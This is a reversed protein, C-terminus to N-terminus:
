KSLRSARIAGVYWLSIQVKHFEFGHAVLHVPMADGGHPEVPGLAVVRPGAAHVGLVAPDHLLELVIGRRADDHERSSAFGETDPGVAACERVVDLGVGVIGREVPGGFIGAIADPGFEVRVHRPLKAQPQGHDGCDIASASADGHRQHREAVDSERDCPALTVVTAGLSPNGASYPSDQIRGRMM